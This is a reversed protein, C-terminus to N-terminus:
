AAAADQNTNPKNAPKSSAPKGAKKGVTRQTSSARRKPESVLTEVMEMPGEAWVDAGIEEALGEARNFVGAGVAIQLGPCGNVERVHDILARINPLDSAASAFMLLVDPQVTNIQGLIEDNAVGGGAFTVEFGESELLDVAMQAGMEDAETPGCFTMITKGRSPALTLQSSNQDVLVRLLRTATHHALKALQDQRYLRDLLQYTPWFLETILQKSTFGATTAETMLARARTRNGSILTEFLRQNLRDALAQIQTATLPPSTASPTVFNSAPASM